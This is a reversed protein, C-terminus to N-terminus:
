REMMGVHDGPFEGLAWVLVGTRCVDHVRVPEFRDDVRVGMGHAGQGFINNADEALCQVNVIAPHRLKDIRRYRCQSEQM